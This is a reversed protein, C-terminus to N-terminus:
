WRPQALLGDQQELEWAEEDTGQYGMQNGALIDGNRRFVHTTKTRPSFLITPTERCLCSDRKGKGAVFVSDHRDSVWDSAGADILLKATSPSIHIRGPKSTKEMRSCTNVSDGFLQDPGLTRTLLCSLASM